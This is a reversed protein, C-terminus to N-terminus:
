IEGIKVGLGELVEDQSAMEAIASKYLRQQEASLEVLKLKNTAMYDEWYAVSRKARQYAMVGLQIQISTLRNEIPTLDTGGLLTTTGTGGGAGILAALALPMWQDRLDPM